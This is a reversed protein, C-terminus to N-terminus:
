PVLAHKPQFHEIAYVMSLKIHLMITSIWTHKNRLGHLSERKGPRLFRRHSKMLRQNRSTSSIHGKHAQWLTMHNQPAVHIGANQSAKSYQFLGSLM